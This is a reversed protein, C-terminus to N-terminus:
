RTGAQSKLKRLNRQEPAKPLPTLKIAGRRREKIM